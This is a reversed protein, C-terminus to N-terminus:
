WLATSTFVLAGCLSLAIVNCSIPAGAVQPDCAAGAYRHPRSAPALWADAIAPGPPRSWARLPGALEGRLISQPNLLLSSLMCRLGALHARSSRGRPATCSGDSPIACPAADLPRKLLRVGLLRPRFGASRLGRQAFTCSSSPSLPVAPSRLQAGGMHDQVDLSFNGPQQSEAEFVPLVASPRGAARMAHRRPAPSGLAPPAM